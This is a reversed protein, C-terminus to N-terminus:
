NLAYMYAHVYAKGVESIYFRELACGDRVKKVCLGTRLTGLNKMELLGKFKSIREVYTNSLINIM